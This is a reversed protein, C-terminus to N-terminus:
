NIWEITPKGNYGKQFEYWAYAAASRTTIDQFRGNKACNIRDRSVYVTKLEKRDYLTRRKIGELFQLKLFMFVKNGEPILELGHEIFERAYKYPPNTIIDGNFPEYVSLFDVGGEGFGRYILDTSKVDYGFESLRKSLHGEGCAVEWVFHSLQAKGELLLYDIAKPDTAYYDFDARESDTHNSAGLISYMTKGNGTWDKM